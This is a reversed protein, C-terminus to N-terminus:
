RRSNDRLGSLIGLSRKISFDRTPQHFARPNGRMMYGHHVGPMIHVEVNKARAAIERYADLVNVPALHDQDGWILCIPGVVDNLEQIYDLMQTGHCSIGGAYGLRKPGLVAYPGGYCLCMAAARGNFNPLTHLYALTDAMDGEGAKIAELRPQARLAARHDTRSLPGPHGAARLMSGWDADM